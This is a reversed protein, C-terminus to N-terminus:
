FRHFFINNGKPWLREFTGPYKKTCFTRNINKHNTLKAEMHFSASVESKRPYDDEMDQYIYGEDWVVGRREPCGSTAKPLDYTGYPWVPFLPFFSISIQFMYM